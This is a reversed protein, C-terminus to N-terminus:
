IRSTWSARDTFILFFPVWVFNLILDTGRPLSGHRSTTHPAALVQVSEDHGVLALCAMDPALKRDSSTCAGWPYIGPLFSFCLSFCAAASPPNPQSLYTIIHTAENLILTPKLNISDLHNFPCGFPCWRNQRRGKSVFGSKKYCPFLRSTKSLWGASTEPPLNREQRVCSSLFKSRSQQWSKKGAWCAGEEQGSLHLQVTSPIRARSGSCFNAALMMVTNAIHTQRGGLFFNGFATACPRAQATAIAQISDRGSTRM